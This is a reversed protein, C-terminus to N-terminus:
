SKDQHQTLLLREMGCLRKISFSLPNAVYRDVNDEPKGKRLLRLAKTLHDNLTVANHQLKGILLKQEKVQKEFPLARELEKETEELKNKSAAAADEAAQLQKRLDDMQHQSQEVM